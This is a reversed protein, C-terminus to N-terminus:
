IIYILFRRTSFLLVSFLKEKDNYGNHVMGQKDFKDAVKNHYIYKIQNYEMNSIINRKREKFAKELKYLM